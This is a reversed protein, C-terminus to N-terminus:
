KRRGRTIPVRDDVIRTGPIFKPNEGSHIRILELETEVERDVAKEVAGQKNHSSNM